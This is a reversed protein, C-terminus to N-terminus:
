QKKPKLGLPHKTDILQRKYSTDLHTYIETTIISEHGLIEQVLRIDVGATILDTAFTHRFTHPSINRSIGAEKVIKKIITFIMERTLKGKRNNIFLFDTNLSEVSYRYQNIVSITQDNIPVLREKDGKGLVRIFGDNFFLDGLRLNILESVRLGTSYLMDIIATNRLGLWTNNKRSAEFILILENMTITDPIKRGLKPSDIKDMPSSDIKEYMVLYSFFSRLSSIKRAQSSAEIGQTHLHIFYQEIIPCDISKSLFEPNNELLYHYFDEIDSIYAIISNNLLKKAFMLHSKYESIQETWNM